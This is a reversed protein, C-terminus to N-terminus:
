WFSL